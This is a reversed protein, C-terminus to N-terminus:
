PQTLGPTPTPTLTLASPRAQGETEAAERVVAMAAERADAAEQRAAAVEVEVAALQVEAAERGAKEAAAEACASSLATWPM